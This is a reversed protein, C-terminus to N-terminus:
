GPNGPDGVLPGARIGVATSAPYSALPPGSSATGVPNDLERSRLLRLSPRTSGRRQAAQRQNPGRPADTFGTALSASLFAVPGGRVLSEGHVLSWSEPSQDLVPVPPPIGDVEGDGRDRRRDPQCGALVDPQDPFAVRFQGAR